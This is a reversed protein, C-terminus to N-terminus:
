RFPLPSTRSTERGTSAGLCVERITGLVVDRATRSASGFLEFCANTDSLHFLVEEVHEAYGDAHVLEFSVALRDNAGAELQRKAPDDELKLGEHRRTTANLRARFRQHGYREDASPGDVDIWRASLKEVVAQVHRDRIAVPRILESGHFVRINDKPQKRYLWRACESAVRRAERASANVILVTPSDQLVLCSKTTPQYITTREGNWSGNIKRTIQVDLLVVGPRIAAALVGSQNDELSVSFAPPVAGLTPLEFLVTRRTASDYEVRLRGAEESDLEALKDIPDPGLHPEGRNALLYRAHDDIGM